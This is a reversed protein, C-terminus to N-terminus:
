KKAEVKKPAQMGSIQVKNNVCGNCIHWPYPIEDGCCGCKSNFLKPKEPKKIQQEM